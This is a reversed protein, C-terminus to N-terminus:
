PPTKLRTSNAPTSATLCSACIARCDTLPIWHKAAPDWRYARGIDTRAYILDRQKPSFVIGSIFGGAVIQVNRWTYPEAAPRAAAQGQAPLLGGLTGAALALGILGRMM